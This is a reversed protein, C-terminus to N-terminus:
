WFQLHLQIDDSLYNTSLYTYTVTPNHGPPELETNWLAHKRTYSISKVVKQTEATNNTDFSYTLGLGTVNMTIPTLWVDNLVMTMERIDIPSTADFGGWNELDYIVM